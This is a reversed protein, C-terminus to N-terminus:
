VQVMGYIRGAPTCELNFFGGVMGETIQYGVSANSQTRATIVEADPTVFTLLWAPNGMTSNNLRQIETVNVNRHIM